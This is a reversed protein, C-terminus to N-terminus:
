SGQCSRWSGLSFIVGVVVGALDGSVLALITWLISGVLFYLGSPIM